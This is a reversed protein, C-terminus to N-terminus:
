RVLDKQKKTKKNKEEKTNRGGNTKGRHNSQLNKKKKHKKKDNRERREKQAVKKYFILKRLDFLTRGGYGARKKKQHSLMMRKQVTRQKWSDLRKGSKSNCCVQVGDMIRFLESYDHLSEDYLSIHSCILLAVGGRGGMGMLTLTHQKCNGEAFLEVAAVSRPPTRYGQPADTGDERDGNADSGTFRVNNEGAAFSRAKREENEAAVRQHARKCSKYKRTWDALTFLKQRGAPPTM